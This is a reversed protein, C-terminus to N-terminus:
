AVRKARHGISRECQEMRGVRKGECWGLKGIESRRNEAVRFKQVRFRWVKVRSWM